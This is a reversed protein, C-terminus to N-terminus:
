RRDGRAWEFALQNVKAPRTLGTIIKGLGLKARAAERLEQLSSGTIVQTEEATPRLLIIEAPDVGADALMEEAHTSVFVQRDTRQAAQAFVRPLQRIIERHLSLEPEELILLGEGHQIAWLLGILRLTGDSFDRENQWVGGPRWHEYKAELHPVGVKDREIRLASFQPVAIKLQKEIRALAQRQKQAGLRALQEVYDSGATDQDSHGNGHRPIRVEQPVIHTTTIQALADALPRFKANQTLQELHTQELLREDSKDEDKPRVLLPPRRGQKVVERVIRTPKAKTGELELEYTWTQKEIELEVAISVKSDRRAHLSRLHALDGRAELARALSGGHSAIDRLFRFADLFNTKGGANPGVVFMRDRLAVDVSRFNRWNSLRLHRFSPNMQEGCRSIKQLGLRGAATGIWWPAAIEARFATL